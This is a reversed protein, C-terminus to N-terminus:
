DRLPTGRQTQLTSHLGVIGMLLLEIHYREQHLFLVAGFPISVCRGVAMLM